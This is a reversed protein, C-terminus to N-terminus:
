AFVMAGAVVDSHGNLYKTASHLVVDRWAHNAPDPGADACHLGGGSPRRSRPLPRLLLRAPIPQGCGSHFNNCHPDAARDCRYPTWLEAARPLITEPKLHASRDPRAFTQPRVCDKAVVDSLLGPAISNVRSPRPRVQNFQRNTM